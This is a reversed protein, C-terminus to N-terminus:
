SAAEAGRAWGRRLQGLDTQGGGPHRHQGREPAQHVGPKHARARLKPWLRSKRWEGAQNQLSAEPAAEGAGGERGDREPDGLNAADQSLM